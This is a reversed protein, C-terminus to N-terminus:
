TPGYTPKRMFAVDISISLNKIKHINTSTIINVPTFEVGDVIAKGASKAKTDIRQNEPKIVTYAKVLHCFITFRSLVQKTISFIVSDLNICTKDKLM